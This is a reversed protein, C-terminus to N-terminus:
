SKEEVLMADVVLTRIVQAISCHRKVAEARVWAVLDPDLLIQIVEKRM